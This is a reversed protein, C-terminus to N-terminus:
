AKEQAIEAVGRLQVVIQDTSQLVSTPETVGLENVRREITQRAQTVAQERMTIAINPRLTFVYSGNAGPSRNYNTELDAVAERFAADQESPIGEVKFETPGNASLATFPINRTKMLDRLREVEANTESALATETQVRLVLHVGGQLDLGRKLMKDILVKPQNIGYRTAILPYIGVAFFAVFVVLITVVKWQLNSM